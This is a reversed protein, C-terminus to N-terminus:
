SQRIAGNGPKTGPASPTQMSDKRQERSPILVAVVEQLKGLVIDVFLGVLGAVFAAAFPDAPSVNGLATVAGIRYGFFVLLALGAGLSPRFLYFLSWSPAFQRNGVYNVFSRSAGIFAGLAGMVLVLDILSQDRGFQSTLADPIGNPPVLEVVASAQRQAGGTATFVVRTVEKVVDPAKYTGDADM